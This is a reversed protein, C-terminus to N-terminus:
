ATGEKEGYENYEMKDYILCGKMKRGQLDGKHREKWIEVYLLDFKLIQVYDRIADDHLLLLLPLNKDKYEPIM